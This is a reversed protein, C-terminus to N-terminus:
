RYQVSCQDFERLMIKISESLVWTFRQNNFYSTMATSKKILMSEFYIEERISINNDKDEDALLSGDISTDLSTGRFILTLAASSPPPLTRCAEQINGIATQKQISPANYPTREGEHSISLKIIFYRSIVTRTDLPSIEM